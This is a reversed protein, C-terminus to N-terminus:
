AAEAKRESRELERRWKHVQLLARFSEFDAETPDVPVMEIDGGDRPMAVVMGRVVGRGGAASWLDRIPRIYAALQLRREPYIRANPKADIVAVQGAFEGKDFTCLLDLTGCYDPPTQNLPWCLRGETMLPRLGVKEAWEKWGAFVFLAQDTVTPEEVKEGLQTRVAHEILAHVQKGVDAAENALREHEFEEKALAVLGDVYSVEAALQEADSEYCGFHSPNRFAVRATGEVQVRVKWADLMPADMVKIVTTVGPVVKKAIRYCHRGDITIQDHLARVSEIFGNPIM